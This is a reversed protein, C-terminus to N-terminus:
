LGFRVLIPCTKATFRSLCNWVAELAKHRHRPGAVEITCGLTSIVRRALLAARRTKPSFLIPLGACRLNKAGGLKVAAGLPPRRRGHHSAYLQDRGRQSLRGRRRDGSHFSAEFAAFPLRQHAERLSVTATPLTLAEQTRERRVMTEVKQENKRELGDRCDRTSQPKEEPESLHLRTNRRGETSPMKRRFRKRVVCRKCGQVDVPEKEVFSVPHSM